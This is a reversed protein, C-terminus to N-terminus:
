HLYITEYESHFDFGAKAYFAAADAKRQNVTLCISESRELLISSLQSLCRTGYGKLREQPNVHIGELYAMQPTEGVVDAKFIPRGDEVWIWVRGQNIRREIRSRFGAPDRQLPNVGNEELAM